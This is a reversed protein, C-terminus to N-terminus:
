IGCHSMFAAVFKCWAILVIGYFIRLPWLLAIVIRRRYMIDLIFTKKESVGVIEGNVMIESPVMVSSKSKFFLLMSRNRNFM